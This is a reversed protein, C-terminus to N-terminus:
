LRERRWRVGAKVFRRALPLEGGFHLHAFAAYLSAGAVGSRWAAEGGAKRAALDTGNETCDWYHFEHAPVTEGRRLLLSDREATLTLYGFRQLRDTRVGRGTLAGAMPWPTGSEDELTQQLYLFGGCEAVTPLGALVARRVSERMATNRSLTEAHLEPYGGPLYLGDADGPLVGDRLPSFFVLEAGAERLADLNDQYLFCFAEDRAVAIRCYAPPLPGPQASPAAATGTLALLSPIDATQELQAAVAEVRASLDQIEGATLLGLHRSKIVAEEMPPLFGLVPLGTERELLPALRAYLAPRCHNLLLGALRSPTRFTQLGRVQAALTLSSGEPRLVLVAPIDAAEATRWASAQDTGGCGDYFGMAGEVLAVDARQRNLTRRLGAEGQLFLDLNRSPTGLVREHFMPDIYDPGCKFCEAAVGRRRLAALLGCTITTKGSGSSVATLMLRKM